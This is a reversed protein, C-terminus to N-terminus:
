PHGRSDGARLGPRSRQGGRVAPRPSRARGAGGRWAPSVGSHRVSNTVLETVVLQLQYATDDDVHAELATLASRAAGAANPAAASWLSLTALLGVRDRQAHMVASQNTDRMDGAMFPKRALHRASRGATSRAASPRHGRGGQTVLDEHRAQRESQRLGTGGAVLVLAAALLLALGFGTFALETRWWGGGPGGPCALSSTPTLGPGGGGFAPRIGGNDPSVGRHDPASADSPSGGGPVAGSGGDPASAASPGDVPADGTTVVGDHGPSAVRVPTRGVLAGIQLTGTSGEIAQPGSGWVSSSTDGPSLVWM